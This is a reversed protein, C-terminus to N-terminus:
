PYPRTQRKPVSSNVSFNNYTRHTWSDKPSPGRWLLVSLGSIECGQALSHDSRRPRSAAKSSSLYLIPQIWSTKGLYYLLTVHLSVWVHLVCPLFFCNEDLLHLFYFYLFSPRPKTQSTRNPRQSLASWPACVLSPLLQCIVHGM